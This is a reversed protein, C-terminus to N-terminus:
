PASAVVAVTSRRDHRDHDIAVDVFGAARCRDAFAAAQADTWGHSGLGAAGAHTLREIAVFRGGPVLVRRVEHLGRDVDRWHHVTAISWAVTASGDACPLAEATGDVYNVRRSHTLLRAVRRMVRAPDVGTVSAGARAAHRAAAGPGSGIDLVRDGADLQVLRAAQRADGDRGAVMSLAAVLGSLGSFSPYHAHHNPIVTDTM